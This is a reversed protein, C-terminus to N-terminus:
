TGYFWDELPGRLERARPTPGWLPGYVLGADRARLLATLTDLQSVGPSDWRNVTAAQLRVGPIGAQAEFLAQVVEAVRRDMGAPPPLGRLDDPVPRALAEELGTAQEPPRSGDM